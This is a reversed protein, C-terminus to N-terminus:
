TLYKTVLIFSYHKVLLTIKNSKGAKENPSKRVLYKKQSM